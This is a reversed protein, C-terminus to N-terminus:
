KKLFKILYSLCTVQTNHPTHDCKMKFGLDLFYKVYSIDKIKDTNVEDLVVIGRWVNTYYRIVVVMVCTVFTKTFSKIDDINLIECFWLFTTKFLLLFFNWSIKYFLFLEQHFYVWNQQSTSFYVGYLEVEEIILADWLFSFGERDGLMESPSPVLLFLVFVNYALAGRCIFNRM